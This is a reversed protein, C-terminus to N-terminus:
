GKGGQSLQGLGRLVDLEPEKSVFVESHLESSIYDALGTLRASGGSLIIGASLASTALEAPVNSFFLQLNILLDAVHSDFAPMLNEATVVLTKGLQNTIDKGQVSIKKQKAVRSLVPSAICGVEKKVLEAVHWSVACHDKKRILDQVAETFDVGGVLFRTCAIVEGASVLAIETSQGGITIVCTTNDAEVKRGAGLMVAESLSVPVVKGLAAQSLRNIFVAREVPSFSDPVAVVCKNSHLLSWISQTVELEKKIATLFLRFYRPSAVAGNQIPFVVEVRKGNKGLLQYAKTGVAVVTDTGRQLALCTPQDFVIKEGILIRTGASGIDAVVLTGGKAQAQISRILRGERSM